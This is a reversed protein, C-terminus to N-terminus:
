ATRRSRKGRRRRKKQSHSEGTGAIPGPWVGGLGVMRRSVSWAIAAVGLMPEIMKMMRRPLLHDNEANQGSVLKRGIRWFCSSILFFLVRPLLVESGSPNGKGPFILVYIGDLVFGLLAIPVSLLFLGLMIQCFRYTHQLMQEIVRDLSM